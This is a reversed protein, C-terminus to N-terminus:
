NNKLIWGFLEIATDFEYVVTDGDRKTDVILERLTEGIFIWKKDRDGIQKMSKFCFKGNDSQYAFGKNDPHMSYGNKLHIGYFKDRSIQDVTIVDTPSPPQQIVKKM